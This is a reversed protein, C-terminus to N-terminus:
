AEGDRPRGQRYRSPPVGILETFARTFHAQDAFGLSVALAALDEGQGADIAAAADQLRYRRLVWLPPAGVYRSFMRQLTRPTVNVQEAVSALVVHERSRMLDVAHRVTTYALDNVVRDLETALRQDLFELVASRRADEEPQELVASAVQAVQGGIVDSAPVVRDTLTNADTGFLATLGGPHFAVGTVRGAPPLDSTFLRTLLGHVLTAPLPHGHLQGTSAEEFTLHTIPHTLVQPRFTSAPPRTWSVSWLHRVVLSLPYPLDDDRGM